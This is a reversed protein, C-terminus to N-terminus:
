EPYIMEFLLTLEDELGDLQFHEHLFRTAWIAQESDFMGRTAIRYTGNARYLMGLSGDIKETIFKIPSDTTRGNEGWNFFKPFPLAVVEGTKANLILGRGNLEFWNWRGAYQAKATYNFLVFEEYYMARVDGYQEWNTEGDKVRNQLDEM